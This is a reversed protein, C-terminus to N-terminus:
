INHKTTYQPVNGSLDFLVFTRVRDGIISEIRRKWGDGLSALVFIGALKCKSKTVIDILGAMTRGSTAIDDVLLVNDGKRLWSVPLYLSFVEAPNNAPIESEFYSGPGASKSQTAYVIASDMQLAISTALTIGSSAATLISDCRVDEFQTKVIGAIWRLANPDGLVSHMDVFGNSRMVIRERLKEEFSSKSLITRELLKCRKFSPRVTGTVYRCILTSDVGSLESMEKYSMTNKLIRLRDVVSQVYGSLDGGPKNTRRRSIGKQNKHEM